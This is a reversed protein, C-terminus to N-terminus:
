ACATLMNEKKIQCVLMLNPKYKRVHIAHWLLSTYRCCRCCCHNCAPDHTNASMCAVRAWLQNGEMQIIQEKRVASWLSSASFGLCLSLSASLCLSPPVSPYVLTSFSFSSHSYSFAQPRTADADLHMVPVTTDTHMHTHTQPPHAHM